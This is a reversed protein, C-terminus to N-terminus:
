VHTFEIKKKLEIFVIAFLYKQAYLDKWSNNILYENKLFFFFCNYKKITLLNM